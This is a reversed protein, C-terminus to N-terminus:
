PLAVAIKPGTADALRDSMAGAARRPPTASYRVGRSLPGALSDPRDQGSIGDSSTPEIEREGDRPSMPRPAGSM